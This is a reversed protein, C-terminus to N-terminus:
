AKPKEVWDHVIRWLRISFGYVLISGPIAVAATVLLVIPLGAVTIANSAVEDLARFAPDWIGELGM